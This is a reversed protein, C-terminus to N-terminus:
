DMAEVERGVERAPLEREGVCRGATGAFMEVLLAIEEVVVVGNCVGRLSM